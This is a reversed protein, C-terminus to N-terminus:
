SRVKWVARGSPSVVKPMFRGSPNPHLSCVSVNGAIRDFIDCHGSRSCSVKRRYWCMETLGDDRFLMFFM